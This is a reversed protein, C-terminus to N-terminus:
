IEKHTPSLVNHIGVMDKSYNVEKPYWLSSQQVKTLRDTIPYKFRDYRQIGDSKGFFIKVDRVNDLSNNFNIIDKL